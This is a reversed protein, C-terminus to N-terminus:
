SFSSPPNFVPPATHFDVNSPVLQWAASPRDQCTRLHRLIWHRHPLALHTLNFPPAARPLHSCPDRSYGRKCHVSEAEDGSSFSLILPRLGGWAQAAYGFTSSASIALKESGSLLWMEALALQAQRYSFDQAKLGSVSHVRVVSGDETGAGESYVEKMRLFYKSQLSAVLVVVDAEVSGNRQRGGRQKRGAQIKKGYLSAMATALTQNTLEGPMAAPLFSSNILCGMIRSMADEDFMARDTRGHLRIQVGVRTSAGAMYGAYEKLVMAWVDNAPNLILHSLLAFAEDERKAFLPHMRRWFSPILFLNPITYLDSEWVVWKVQKLRNYVEETFFAMDGNGPEDWLSVKVIEDEVNGVNDPIDDEANGVNDKHTAMYVPLSPAKDILSHYSSNLPLLWSSPDHPFPECLLNGLNRRNDLLLVRDTAIAYAMASALAALRNGLGCQQADSFLLYRCKMSSQADVDVMNCHRRLDGYNDWDQALLLPLGDPDGDRLLSQQSRSLCSSHLDLEANSTILPTNTAHTTPPTLSPPKIIASFTHTGSFILSLFAVSLLALLLFRLNFASWFQDVLLNDQDFSPSSKAM